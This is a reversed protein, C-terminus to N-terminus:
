AEDAEFAYPPASVNLLPGDNDLLHLNGQEMSSIELVALGEYQDDSTRVVDVLKGAGQGSQSEPSFIDSGRAIESDSSFSVPYMRRKLKGLYQMRAVVEQGTYCGKTFSVADLLQLNTMQPIFAEVTEEYVTPIGDRIDMLRWAATDAAKADLAQWISKAKETEAVLLYRNGTSETRVILTGDVTITQGANEPIKNFGPVKTLCNGNIGFCVRDDSVDEMKVDARLVFMQLRKMVPAVRSRPLIMLWDNGTEVIRMSALMRGKATCYSTMQGKDASINRTDGTLQGQLFSQKDAGSIRVVGLMSLDSKWCDAAPKSNNFVTDGNDAFVANQTELFAQWQTNM